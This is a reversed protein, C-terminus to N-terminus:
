HVPFQAEVAAILDAPNIPKAYIVPNEGLGAEALPFDIMAAHGSLLLIKCDPSFAKIQSALEIGSLGPMMVDSILLDPAQQKAKNLAELPNTFHEASFGNKQLIAAVTWAIVPEDDVVYALIERDNM